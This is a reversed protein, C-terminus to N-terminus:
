IKKNFFDFTHLIRFVNIRKKDKRIKIFKASFNEGVNFGFRVNLLVFSNGRRYGIDLLIIRFAKGHFVESRKAKKGRGAKKIKKFFLRAYRRNGIFVSKGNLIRRLFQQREWLFVNSGDRVIM